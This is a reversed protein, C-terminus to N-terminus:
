YRSLFSEVDQIFNLTASEIQETLSDLDNFDPESILIKELPVQFKLAVRITAGNHILAINGSTLITVDIEYRRIDFVISYNLRFAALYQQSCTFGDRYCTKVNLSHMELDLCRLIFHHVKSFHDGVTTRCRNKGACQSM